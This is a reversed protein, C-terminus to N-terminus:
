REDLICPSGLPHFIQGWSYLLFQTPYAEDVEAECACGFVVSTLEEGCDRPGRPYGPWSRSMAGHCSPFCRHQNSGSQRARCATADPGVQVAQSSTVSVFHVHRGPPLTAIIPLLGSRSLASWRSSRM